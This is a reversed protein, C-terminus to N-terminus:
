PSTVARRRGVETWGGRGPARRRRAADEIDEERVPVGFRDLADGGIARSELEFTHGFRREVATLVKVAEGVVEPGVGDGAFIVIRPM